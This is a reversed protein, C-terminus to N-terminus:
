SRLSQLGGLIMDTALTVQKLTGAEAREKMRSLSLTIGRLTALFFRFAIETTSSPVDGLYERLDTLAKEEVKRQYEGTTFGPSSLLIIVVRYGEPNALGMLLHGTIQSTLRKEASDEQLEGEMRSWTHQFGSEVITKLIDQKDKFYLYITRPSYDIRQALSRITLREVGQEAIIHQSESLIKGRLAEKERERREKISM